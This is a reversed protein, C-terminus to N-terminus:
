SASTAATKAAKSIQELQRALGIRAIRLFEKAWLSAPGHPPFLVLSSFEIDAQLKRLVLGSVDPSPVSLPNTVGVGVGARALACIGTGYPTEAAIHLVIGHAECAKELQQRTVDEPNLAVLPYRALEALTLPKRGRALPHKVPVVVVAATRSFVSHVVGATDVESAAFGIDWEGSAVRDKIMGSSVTQLSVRVQPYQDRFMKLVAPMLTFGLAPLCGVFLRGAEANRLSQAKRALQEMGLYHREVELHFAVGERTAVLRGRKREFLPVAIAKELGALQQSVLPQSLGLLRAAASAGGARMVARFIEIQRSRLQLTDM